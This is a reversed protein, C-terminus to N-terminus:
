FLSKNQFLFKLQTVDDRPVRFGSPNGPGDDFDMLFIKHELAIVMPRGRFIGLVFDFAVFGVM